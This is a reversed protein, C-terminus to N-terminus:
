VRLMRTKSWASFKIFKGKAKAANSTRGSKDVVEQEQGEAGGQGAQGEELPMGYEDFLRGGISYVQGQSPPPWLGAPQETAGQQPAPPPFLGEEYVPFHASEHVQGDARAAGFDVNSFIGSEAHKSHHQVPFHTTTKTNEEFAADLHSDVANSPKRWTHSRVSGAESRRRRREEREAEKKELKREKAAEKEEFARRAAAISATRQVSDEPEAAARNIFGFAKDFSSRVPSTPSSDSMGTNARSRTRSSVLDFSSKVSRLSKLSRHSRISLNTQSDNSSDNGQPDQSVDTSETESPGGMYGDSHGLQRTSPDSVHGPSEDYHPGLRTDTDNNQEEEHINGMPEYEDESGDDEAVPAVSPKRALSPAESARRGMMHDMSSRRALMHDVSSRRGAMHDVSSRRGMMPEGAPGSFSGSVSGNMSWGSKWGGDSTVSNMREVAVDDDENEYTLSNLSNQSPARSRSLPTFARPTQRHPHVFNTTNKFSFGVNDGLSNGSTSRPASKNSNVSRASSARTFEAMSSHSPQIGLGTNRENEAISLSLDLKSEDSRTFSMKRQLERFKDNLSSIEQVGAAQAAGNGGGPLPFKALNLSSTSLGKQHSFHAFSSSTTQVSNSSSSRTQLKPRSLVPITKSAHAILAAQGTNKKPKNQPRAAVAQWGAKKIPASPAPAPQDNANASFQQFPAAHSLDALSDTDPPNSFLPNSLRSTPNVGINLSHLTLPTGVM